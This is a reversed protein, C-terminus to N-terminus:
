DLGGANYFVFQGGEDGTNQLVSYQPINESNLAVIESIGNFLSTTTLYKKTNNKLYEYLYNAFVSKDPVTDLAGSTMGKRSKKEIYKKVSKEISTLKGRSLKFISGGFCSDSILFVHNASISKIKRTLSSNAIWETDDVSGGNSPIWFGEEARYDYIGHGSYYILVKDDEHTRKIIENFGKLIDTRTGNEVYVINEEKFQYKKTLISKLKKTDNIPHKLNAWDKDEYKENAILLAYYEGKILENEVSDIKLKLIGASKNTVVVENNPTDFASTSHILSETYEDISSNIGTVIFYDISMDTGKGEWGIADEYPLLEKYPFKFFCFGNIFLYYWNEMKLVKLENFDDQKVKDTFTWPMLFQEKKRKDTYRVCMEGRGNFGFSYESGKKYNYGWVFMNGGKDNLGEYKMSTIIEFNDYKPFDFNRLIAYTETTKDYSTLRYQNNAIKQETADYQLYEHEDWNFNNQDFHDEFLVVKQHPDIKPYNIEQAFLLSSFLSLLIILRM